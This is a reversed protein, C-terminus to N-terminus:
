RTLINDNAKFPIKLFRMYDRMTMLAMEAIFERFPTKNGTTNYIDIKRGYERKRPPPVMMPLYGNRVLVLNALLRSVRGNGDAFPHIGVFNAHLDAALNVPHLKGKEKEYWEILSKMQGPVQDHPPFEHEAMEIMVDHDRYKGPQLQPMHWAFLLHMRKIDQETLTDNDKLSYMFDYSSAGGITEFLERLTHNGVTMGEGIVVSVEDRTMTNEEVANSSWIADLRFFQEAKRLQEGSLPRANQLANKRQDLERIMENLEM